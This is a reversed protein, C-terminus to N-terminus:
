CCLICKLVDTEFCCVSTLGQVYMLEFHFDILKHIVIEIKGGIREKSKRLFIHWLFISFILISFYTKFPIFNSEKIHMQQFNQKTETTFPIQSTVSAVRHRNQM